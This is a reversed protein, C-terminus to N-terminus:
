PEIEVTVTQGSGIGRLYTNEVTVNGEDDTLDSADPSGLAYLGDEAQVLMIDALCELAFRVDPDTATDNGEVPLKITITVMTM